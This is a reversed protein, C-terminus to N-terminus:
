EGLAALVEDQRRFMRAKSRPAHDDHGLLHLAGHAALTLAERLPSHGLERASRGAMWGSIFIDGIPQEAAPVGPFRDHEFTIVDTDSNHGLYQRNLSRMEARSVFIVGVDGRRRSGELAFAARVAAAIRARKRAPRPLTGLGAVRVTLSERGM